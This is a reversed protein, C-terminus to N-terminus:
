RGPPWHPMSFRPARFSLAALDAGVPRPPNETQSKLAVHGAHVDNLGALLSPPGAVSEDEIVVM